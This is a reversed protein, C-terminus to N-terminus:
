FFLTLLLGALTKSDVIERQAIMRRIEDRTFFKEEIVESPERGQRGPKLGVGKFIHIYEDTFGCSTPIAVVPEVKKATWGTEEELERTACSMPDEGKELLGAPIEWLWANLVPRFQRILLIREGDDTLPVIAAASLHRAVEHNVVHGNPLTFEELNM